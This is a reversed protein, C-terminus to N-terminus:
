RAVITEGPTATAIRVVRAPADWTVAGGLSEAVFRLPVMTRGSILMAPVDLPITKGNVEARNQDLSLRILTDAKIATVTRTTSDWKVHAGMQELVGRLPVMVRGNVEQPQTGNFIVPNGNLAVTIRQAGAASCAVVTAALLSRFLIAFM